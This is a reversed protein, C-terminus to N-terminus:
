SNGVQVKRFAKLLYYIIFFEIVLIFHHILYVLKQNETISFYEEVVYYFIVAFLMGIITGIQRNIDIFSFIKKKKLLHTESRQLYDGFLFTLSRSVYILLAIKYSFPFILFCLMWFVMVLEVFLSIRFFYRKYIIKHYLKAIIISLLAFIIGLIAIEAIKIPQYQSIYSGIGAGLFLSNFFKYKLYNRHHIEISHEAM